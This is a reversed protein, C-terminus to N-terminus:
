RRTTALKPALAAILETLLDDLVDDRVAITGGASGPVVPSCPTTLYLTEDPGANPDYTSNPEVVHLTSEGELSYHGIRPEDDRTFIDWPTFAYRKSRDTTDILVSTDLFKTFVDQSLDVEGGAFDLQKTRRLLSRLREDAAYRQGVANFVVPLIDEAQMESFLREAIEPDLGSTTASIARDILEQLTM